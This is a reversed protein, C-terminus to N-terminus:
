GATTVKETLPRGGPAVALKEGALRDTFAPACVTVSVTRVVAVVAHVIAGEIPLLSAVVLKASNSTGRNPALLLAGARGFAPDM